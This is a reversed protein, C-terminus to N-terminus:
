TDANSVNRAGTRRGSKQAIELKFVKMMGGFVKRMKSHGRALAKLNTGHKKSKKALERFVMGIEKGDNIEKAIGDIIVSAYNTSDKYEDVEFCVNQNRELIETKRGKFPSHFHVAGKVYVFSVPVVYPFKGDSLGLRGVPARVLLDEIEAESMSRWFARM